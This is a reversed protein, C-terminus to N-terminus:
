LCKENKTALSEVGEGSLRLLGQGKLADAALKITSFPLGARESIQLLTHTGDSLNLVWLLAIEASRGTVNGGIARYLGRKGLQPECYPATNVYRSNSELVEIVSQVVQLSRSLSTPKVFDLNDASTHYEPYRGNARRM